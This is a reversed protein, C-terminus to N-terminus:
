APFKGCGGTAAPMKIKSATEPGYKGDVGAGIRGQVTRLANYTNTGFDNDVSISIGYCSVISRQLQGVAANHDGRVMSCRSTTNAANVPVTVFGVGAQSSGYVETRTCAPTAASAATAPMLGVLSSAVTIGAAAISMRFLKM